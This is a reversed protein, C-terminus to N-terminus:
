FSSGLLTKIQDEKYLAAFTSIILGVFFFAIIIRGRQPSKQKIPVTASQLTTFAPTVEQVKAQAQEVGQELATYSNYKLQMDNELDELKSRVSELVIDQNADSYAIYKERIAIYKRKAENYLKQNYALDRRAKATRYDTIFKQLRAKVSDAMCAAILPDQDAVTITIVSTKKDVDCVVNKNIMNAIATQKKTLMFPNVPETKITDTRQKGFIHTWWPTNQYKLLYDYYSMEMNNNKRHVKVDFLKTKFDVSNILDPYLDPVIADVDKGTSTRSGFGLRSALSSLSSGSGGSSLEPALMVESEYINVLGKAYIVGIITLLPVIIAYIMWNKILAKKIAGFDVSEEEKNNPVTSKNLEKNEEM